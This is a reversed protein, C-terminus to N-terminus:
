TNQALFKIIEDAVAQHFKEGASFGLSSFSLIEGKVVELGTEKEVIAVSININVEGFKLAGKEYKIKSGAQYETIEGLLVLTKAEDVSTINGHKVESFHFSGAGQEILRPIETLSDNSFKPINTEFDRIELAYYDRLTKKPQEFISTTKLTGCSIAAIILFLPLLKKKM